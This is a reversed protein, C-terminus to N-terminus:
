RMVAIRTTGGPVFFLAERSTSDYTLAVRRGDVRVERPRSVLPVIVAFTRAGGYMGRRSIALELRRGDDTTVFTSLRFQGAEYEYGDGADEYLESTASGPFLRLFLTDPVRQDTYDLAPQMPVVAGARAFVPLGRLGTTDGGDAGVQPASATISRAGEFQENTGLRFWRGAPLHVQRSVAGSDVVPAVLLHDGLLFADDEGLAATDGLTNWFVPRAVPSGDRTHQFFATYLVPMMRYRLQIAARNAREYASGFLWPERRPSDISSHNRCFPMLVASQLWRSFLEPSPSGNFGGIDDGAFPLGSLGLSIVM